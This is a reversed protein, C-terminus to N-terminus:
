LCNDQPVVVGRHFVDQVINEKLDLLDVHESLVWQNGVRHHGVVVKDQAVLGYTHNSLVAIITFDVNIEGYATKVAIQVKDFTKM